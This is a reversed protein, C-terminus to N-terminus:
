YIKQFVHCGLVQDMTELFDKGIRKDELGMGKALDDISAGITKVCLNSMENIFAIKTALLLSIISAHQILEAPLETQLWISIKSM